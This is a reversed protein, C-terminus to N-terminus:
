KKEDLGEAMKIVWRQKAQRVVKRLRAWKRRLVEKLRENDTRNSAQNRKDIAKQLKGKSHKFWVPTQKRPNPIVERAADIM